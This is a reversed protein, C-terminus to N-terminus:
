FERSVLDPASKLKERLPFVIDARRREIAATTRSQQRVASESCIRSLDAIQPQGAAGNQTEGCAISRSFRFSARAASGAAVSPTGVAGSGRIAIAGHRM